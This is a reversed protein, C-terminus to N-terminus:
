YMGGYYVVALRRVYFFEQQDVLIIMAICVVIGLAIMGRLDDAM